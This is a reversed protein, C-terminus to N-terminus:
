GQSQAGAQELKPVTVNIVTILQDGQTGTTWRSQMTTFHRSKGAHQYNSTSKKKKFEAPQRAQYRM